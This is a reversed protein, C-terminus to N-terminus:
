RWRCRVNNKDSNYARRIGTPDKYDAFPSNYNEPSFIDSNMIFSMGDYFFDNNSKEISDLTDYYNDLSQEIDKSKKNM